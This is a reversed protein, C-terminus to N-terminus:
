DERPTGTSLTSASFEFAVHTGRPVVDDLSLRAEIPETWASLRDTLADQESQQTAYTLSAQAQSADIQSAPLGLIGAIDLRSENRGSVFLDTAKEGHTILQITSPTYIVAQGDPNQRAKAVNKVYEEAEPQSMGEESLDHVELLPIPSRVRSSWTQEMNRASRLADANDALLSSGDGPILIVSKDDKVIEGHVLIHGDQDTTWEDMPVRVADLLLGDAGRETAWLSWGYFLIDDITAAMRHWPSIGSTSNSRYLWTPQNAVLSGDANLARLPRGAIKSILLRRAAAVAPISMALARTVPLEGNVPGILESFAVQELHSADAWPSLLPKPSAVVSSISDRKFASLLGM